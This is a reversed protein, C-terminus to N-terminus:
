CFPRIHRHPGQSQCVKDTQVCDQSNQPNQIFSMSVGLESGTRQKDGVHLGTIEPSFGALSEVIVWFIVLSTKM